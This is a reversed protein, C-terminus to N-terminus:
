LDFRLQGNDPRLLKFGMMITTMNGGTRPRKREIRAVGSLAQKFNKASEAYGGNRTCWKRYHDYVDSTREEAGPEPTLMEEIFQAVKDSDYAYSDTASLVCAPQNLGELVLLRYGEVLWNLIASQNKPKQFETKLTHDQEEESFHREFPIIHMRNSTFLTTDTVVPLYNANIYLKFQPNFDFSNEHLFRANVTDRGTMYKVQAANLVLGRSPESINAFRIGALRAVDESPNNSNSQHKLAITEPRVARGYDGMVLLISECMTGKGNRTSAGYLVFMCEHQSDGSIAYGMAKQLFKAKETDGSTIETIFNDWRKFHATPDYKVPSLKTIKDASNHPRFEMTNLHLTGNQCNFAFIDTDFDEMAIPYISQAEKLITERFIRRQWKLCYAMYASRKKEDEISAAYLLLEDALSKCLEMVCLASLDPVWRKGDFCYWLKREPVFRAVDKFYDGFLRGSGIDAWCYRDNSEPHLERLSIKGSKM